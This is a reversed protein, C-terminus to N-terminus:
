SCRRMMVQEPVLGRTNVEDKRGADQEWKGQKGLANGKETNIQRQTARYLCDTMLKFALCYMIKVITLSFLFSCRRGKNRTSVGPFFCVCCGSNM